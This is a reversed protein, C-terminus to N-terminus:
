LCIQLFRIPRYIPLQLTYLSERQLLQPFVLCGWMKVRECGSQWDASLREAKRVGGVEESKLRSAQCDESARTKWVRGVFQNCHSVFSNCHKCISCLNTQLEARLPFIIIYYTAFTIRTDQCIALNLITNIDTNTRSIYMFRQHRHM